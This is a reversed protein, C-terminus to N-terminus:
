GTTIEASTGRRRAYMERTWDLIGTATLARRLPALAPHGRQPQPYPFEDPAVAPAVLSALTLDAVSFGAGILYGSPQLESNFREGAERIKSYAREVSTEDIAFNSVVTRRLLPFTARAAVRSVAGLDPAFASLMLDPSDLMYNLVLLRVHPGLQEDFFDELELARRRQDADPPYLAPEPHTRELAAIINTTDGIAEDGLILVPFTKAGTLRAAIARHRGPVAARRVHPIRKYDLAWRAKENYNSV